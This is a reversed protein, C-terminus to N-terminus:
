RVGERFLLTKAFRRVERGCGGEPAVKKIYKVVWNDHWSYIRDGRTDSIRGMWAFLERVLGFVSFFAGIQFDRGPCWGRRSLCRRNLSRSHNGLDLGPTGFQRGLHLGARIAGYHATLYNRREMGLTMVKWENQSSGGKNKLPKNTTVSITGSSKSEIWRSLPIIQSVFPSRGWGHEISSVRNTNFDIKEMIWDKSNKYNLWWNAKMRFCM